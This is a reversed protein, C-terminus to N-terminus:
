SKLVAIRKQLFNMLAPPLNGMGMALEYLRLADTRNGMADLSIALGVRWRADAPQLRILQQYYNVASTHRSQKQEAQAAISLLDSDQMFEPAIRQLYPVVQDPQSAMLLRARVVPHENGEMAQSANNQSVPAGKSVADLVNEMAKSSATKEVQVVAAPKQVAAPKAASAAVPTSQATIPAAVPAPVVAAAPTQQVSSAATQPANNDPQPVRTEAGPMIETQANNQMELQGADETDSLLEPEAAAVPAMFVEDALVLPAPRPWFYYTLAAINLLVSVALLPWWWRASKKQATFLPIGSAQQNNQKADLNKLVDHIVSM